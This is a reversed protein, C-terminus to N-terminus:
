GIVRQVSPIRNAAYVVGVSVVLAIASITLFKKSSVTM